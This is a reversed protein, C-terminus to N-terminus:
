APFYHVNGLSIHLPIVHFYRVNDDGGSNDDSGSGQEGGAQEDDICLM